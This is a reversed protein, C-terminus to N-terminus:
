YVTHKVSRSSRSKSSAQSCLSLGLARQLLIQRATNDTLDQGRM